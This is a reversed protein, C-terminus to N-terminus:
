KLMLLHKEYEADGHMAFDRKFEKLRVRLENLYLKDNLTIDGIVVIYGIAMRLVVDQIFHDVRKRHGLEQTENQKTVLTFRKFWNNARKLCIGFTHKYIGEPLNTEGIRNLM